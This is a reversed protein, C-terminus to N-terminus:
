ANYQKSLITVSGDDAIALVNVYNTDAITTSVATGITVSGYYTADDYGAYFDAVTKVASTGVFYKAGALHDTNWADKATVGSLTFGTAGITWTGDSPFLRSGAAKLDFAITAGNFLAKLLAIPNYNAKQDLLVVGKPYWTAVGFKVYPQLRLGQGNPDDVIKVRDTASVGRACAYSSAIYGVFDSGKAFEGVPLGLFDAAHQLSMNSIIHVPVGDIEGIFGDEGRQDINEKDVGAGRLIDYGYNAGGVVLVGGTKLIARYSPKFVAIRTKTPFMDIGHEDDGEDLLSNAEIFKDAVLKNSIDSSSITVENPTDLGWVGLLKSAATAGNLITALRNSFIELNEATLDVPIMDQRARPILIPDDLVQLLEIGVTETETYHQNDSYSGGNLSAGMVRPKMKVPKVRNVFVQAAHTAADETVWKDDIGRNNREVLGQYMNKLIAESMRREASVGNIYTANTPSLIQSILEVAM